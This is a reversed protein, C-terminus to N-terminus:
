VISHRFLGNQNSKIQNTATATTTTTTTTITTTTTTTVKFGLM